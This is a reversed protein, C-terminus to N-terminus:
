LSASVTYRWQYNHISVSFGYKKLLERLEKPAYFNGPEGLFKEGLFLANGRFTSKDFDYIFLRGKKKLVRKVEGLAVEVDSFHHLAEGMMVLDFSDNEFPLSEATGIHTELYDPAYKVMGPSPDVAVLKLNPNCKYAFESMMGTGSGIDLVSSQEALPEIFTCLEEVVKKPYIFSGFHKFFFGLYNFPIM